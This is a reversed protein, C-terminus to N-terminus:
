EGPDSLGGPGATLSLDGREAEPSDSSRELLAEFCRERFGMASDARLFAYRLLRAPDSPSDESVAEALTVLIGLVSELQAVETVCGSAQWHLVGDSLTAGGKGVAAEVARRARAGM